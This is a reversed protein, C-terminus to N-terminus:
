CNIWSWCQPEPGCNECDVEFVGFSDSDRLGTGQERSGAGQDRNGSRQDRRDDGDFLIRRSPRAATRDTLGSFSASLDTGDPLISFYTGCDTQNGGAATAGFIRRRDPRFQAHKPFEGDDEPSAPLAFEGSQNGFAYITHNTQAALAAGGFVLAASSAVVCLLACRAAASLSSTVQASRSMHRTRLRLQSCKVQRQTERRAKSAKEGSSSVTSSRTGLWAALDTKPVVYEGTRLEESEGFLGFAEAFADHKHISRLQGPKCLRVDRRRPGCVRGAGLSFEVCWTEVFKPNHHAQERRFIEPRQAPRVDREVDRKRRNRGPKPPSRRRRAVRGRRTLGRRPRAPQAHRPCVRRARSERRNAHVRSGDTRPLSHERVMQQACPCATMGESRRRRRLANGRRRRARHRGAHLDGRRKGSVPTWRELGFDARLSRRRPDRTPERCRQAIARGPARHAAARRRAGARGAHSRGPDGHLAVHSAPRTPLSTRSWRSSRRQLRADKRRNRTARDTSRALRRRPKLGPAGRPNRQRDSVFHLSRERCVVGNGVRLGGHFATRTRRAARRQLRARCRDQVVSGDVVLLDIDIPRGRTQSHECTRGRDRREPSANSNPPTWRPGCALRWTSFRRAPPEAAPASEYFSSVADGHRSRAVAAPGRSRQGSSRWTPDSEVYM